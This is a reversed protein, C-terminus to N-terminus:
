DDLDVNGMAVYEDYDLDELEDMKRKEDRHSM